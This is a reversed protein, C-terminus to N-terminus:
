EICPQVNNLTQGDADFLMRRADSQEHESASQLISVRHDQTDFAWKVCVDELGKRWVCICNKNESFRARQFDGGRCASLPFTCM